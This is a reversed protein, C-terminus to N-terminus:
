VGLAVRPIKVDDGEGARFSPVLRQVRNKRRSCRARSRSPLGCDAAVHHLNGDDKWRGRPGTAIAVDLCAVPNGETSLFTGEFRSLGVGEPAGDGRGSVIPRAADGTVIVFTRV